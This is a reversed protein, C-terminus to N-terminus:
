YSSKDLKVKGRFIHYVWFGYALVLPVGIAVVIMLIGLTKPTSATNYITLSHLAPELTSPVIVPYTGLGYLVLLLAISLASSLFAWGSNQKRIQYPINLISFFSLLPFIFLWPSKHFTELMHPMYILTAITTAVYWFLFMFIAPQIWKQITAHTEGETKMNLYTAGHMAFLATTTIGVLVCYPHFFYSFDGVYNQEADLPIGHIMNGILVGLMFAVLISAFSFVVDWTKRWIPSERKSRFEIAVARFMLGAILFMLLSYFGSFITAYVNPFGAFLGGMIIVLWVENGDWVPGISNIFIRRQQDNRALLHLAGVGLDFGDLVTYLLVSIGIVAYWLTELAM